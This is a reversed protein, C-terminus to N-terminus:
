ICAPVMETVMCRRIKSTWSTQGPFKFYYVNGNDSKDVATDVATDAVTDAVEIITIIEEM